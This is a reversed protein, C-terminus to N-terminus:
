YNRFQPVICICLLVLGANSYVGLATARTIVDIIISRQSTENLWLCTQPNEQNKDFGGTRQPSKVGEPNVFIRLILAPIFLPNPPDPYYV